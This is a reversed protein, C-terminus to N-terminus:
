VPANALSYNGIDNHNKWFRVGDDFIREIKAGDDAPLNGSLTCGLTKVYTWYPRVSMNPTMVKKQAYGFMTFYDDIIKVYEQTISKHYFYFDKIHMGAMLSSAQVGNTQPPKRSYDMRKGLLSAINGATHVAGMVGTIPSIMSGIATSIVGSTVTSVVDATRSSQNQALWAKYADINFACSPFGALGMKEGIDAVQATHNKYSIPVIMAEPELSAIGWVSFQYQTASAKFFEFRFTAFNGDGNTVCLFNYPYTFLKKNKIDSYGDLVTYNKNGTYTQGVSQQDTIFATPCMCAGVIADSKAKDTLDDIFDNAAQYTGFQHLVIGSYVGNIMQGGAVPNGQQDVSAGIIITYNDMFHTRNVSNVVYDGIELDEDVINDGINDTASHQREVFCKNLTFAGMWTMMVDLEFNVQTTINNIYEVNKVFAYFWKNEFSSNKFRMYGVNIMTSMPKEVRIFGREARSYTLATASTIPTLADFYADKASVSPFYLTNEYNPSLGLDGFFQVVGDPQIYAM